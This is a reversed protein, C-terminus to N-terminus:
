VPTPHHTKLTGKSKAALQACPKVGAPVSGPTPFAEEASFRPVAEGRAREEEPKTMGQM